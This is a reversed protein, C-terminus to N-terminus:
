SSGKTSFIVSFQQFVIIENTFNGMAAIVDDILRPSFISFRLQVDVQM